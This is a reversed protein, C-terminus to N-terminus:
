PSNAPFHGAIKKDIYAISNNLPTILLVFGILVGLYNAFMDYYSFSRYDTSGQLYELVIGMLVFFGAVFWKLRPNVLLQACYFMLVTYALVHNLKLDYDTQLYDPFAPTLSLYTVGAVLAMGVILWLPKFRFPRFINMGSNCVSTINGPKELTM